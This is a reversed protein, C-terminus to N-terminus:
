RDPVEDGGNEDLSRLIPCPGTKSRVLCSQVLEVLVREMQRLRRIRSRVERLRAEAKRRVAECSATDSVRLRLLAGIEKLDFGLRQAHKVFGITKVADGGYIRYGSERRGLPELLGIREYYRLTQVNVGAERAVKGITLEDHM